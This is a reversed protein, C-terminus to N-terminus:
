PDSIIRVAVNLEFEGWGHEEIEFPHTTVERTPNPFTPHLNFVVQLRAIIEVGRASGRQCVSLVSAHVTCTLYGPM